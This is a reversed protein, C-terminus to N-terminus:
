LDGFRKMATEVAPDDACAQLGGGMKGMAATMRDKHAEMYADAKKDVEANGELSKAQKLLAENRSFASELAAGMAKCDTGSTAVAAAMEDLFDLTRGFLTELEADTPAAAPAAPAAGVSSPDAAKPQEGGAAPASLSPSSPETAPKSKGCAGLALAASLILIRM